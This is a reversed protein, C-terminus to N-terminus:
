FGRQGKKQFPDSLVIQELLISFKSDRKQFEAMIKDVACRDYYELGRGLAYTLMKETLCRVFQEKNRELLAARLEQAGRM